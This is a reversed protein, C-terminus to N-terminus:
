GLYSYAFREITYPTGTHVIRCGKMVYHTDIPNRFRKAAKFIEDSDDPMEHVHLGKGDLMALLDDCGVENRQSHEPKTNTNKDNM